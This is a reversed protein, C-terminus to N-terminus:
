FNNNFICEITIIKISATNKNESYYNLVKNSQTNHAIFFSKGVIKSIPKSTISSM